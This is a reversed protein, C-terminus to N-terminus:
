KGEIIVVFEGKVKDKNNEFYNLVEKSNGRVIEEFKKTLERCVVVKRNDIDLSKLTKIIRYVSEYFVITKKEEKIEKFVTERGKKTPLFGLFIFKDSILGSASLACTIASPGPIPIIKTEKIKGVEEVLKGGPDSISPTGADSVLALKKGEKLLEVIYDVKNVKSHQHYSILPRKVEYHDLLIGTKRTDECLIIDSQKLIELARLTIDGLNGIPTAVIYLIGM